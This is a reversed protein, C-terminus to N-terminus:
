RAEGKTADDTQHWHWIAKPSLGAQFAEWEERFAAKATELSDAAGDAWAPVPIPPNINWRWEDCRKVHNQALRIRGINRGEFYVCFDDKLRDGGIVTPRLTLLHEIM